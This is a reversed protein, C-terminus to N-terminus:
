VCLNWVKEKKDYFLLFPSMSTEHTIYSKHELRLLRM